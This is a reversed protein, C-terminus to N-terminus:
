TKQAALDPAAAGTTKAASVAGRWSWYGRLNCGLFVLNGLCIALNNLLLGAAIWSLNAAMFTVFGYRNRRGLLGLAVLSLVMALWDLGYLKM